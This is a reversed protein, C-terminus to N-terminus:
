RLRRDDILKEGRSVAQGVRIRPFNAAVKDWDTAGTDTRFLTMNRVLPVTYTGPIDDFMENVDNLDFVSVEKFYSDIALKGIAYSALLLFDNKAAFRFVEWPNSSAYTHM